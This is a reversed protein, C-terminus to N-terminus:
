DQELSLWIPSPLFSLIRPPLASVSLATSNGFVAGGDQSLKVQGLADALIRRLLIIDEIHRRNGEASAAVSRVYNLTGVLAALALAVIALAVLLEVITFGSDSRLRNM